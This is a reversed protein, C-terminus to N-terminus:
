WGTKMWKDYENIEESLYKCTENIDSVYKLLKGVDAYSLLDSLNDDDWRDNRTSFEEYIESKIKEREKYSISLDNLKLLRELIWDETIEEFPELENGNYLREIMNNYHSLMNEDKINDLLLTVYISDTKKNLSYRFNIKKGNLDFFAATKMENKNIKSKECLIFSGLMGQFIIKM